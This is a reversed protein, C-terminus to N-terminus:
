RILMLNFKEWLASISISIPSNPSPEHLMNGTSRYYEQRLQNISEACKLSNISQNYYSILTPYLHTFDDCIHGAMQQHDADLRLHEGRLLRLRFQALNHKMRHAMVRYSLHSMGLADAVEQDPLAQQKNLMTLLSRLFVFRGRSTFVQHAYAILQSAVSLKQEDTIPSCSSAEHAQDSYATFSAHDEAKARTALYNRFTNRLWTEFADKNKIRQLSQYPYRNTGSKGERLYLFFDELIDDFSDYLQRQFTEYGEHLSHGLRHHLLYYMAEDSKDAQHLIINVFDPIAIGAFPNTNIVYDSRFPDASVALWEKREAESLKEIAYRLMTRPMEHAHQRLFDRLLDLHSKGMERLMWGVAKHMLDHPHHLHIEAYRLCWSPDGHHSPYWTCVISMRQKWLCDSAALEDLVQRKHDTHIDAEGGGLCTPLLLWHGLIKYVSLDVLDWNNAYTAYQLYLTIIEDRKRIALEDHELRKTALREFQDVLILFGCLRVEHWRSVLLEPVESLSLDKSVHRVVERTQPVKIGLFEDGEGYDGPGTKFFRMLNLRQEEDQLSEMYEIIESARTM